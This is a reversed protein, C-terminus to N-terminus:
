EKQHHRIPTFGILNGIGATKKIIGCRGSNVLTIHTVLQKKIFFTEIPASQHSFQLSFPPWENYLYFQENDTGDPLKNGPSFRLTSPKKGGRKKFMILCASRRIINHLGNTGPATENLVIVVDALERTCKKVNSEYLSKSSFTALPLGHIFGGNFIVRKKSLPYFGLAAKNLSDITNPSILERVFHPEDLIGGGSAVRKWASDLIKDVTMINNKWRYSAM